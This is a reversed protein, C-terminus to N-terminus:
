FTFNSRTNWAIWRCFKSMLFTVLKFILIQTNSFRLFDSFPRPGSTLRLHRKFPERDSAESVCSLQEAMRWHGSCRWPRRGRTGGWTGKDMARPQLPPIREWESEERWRVAGVGRDDVGQKATTSWWRAAEPWRREGDVGGWRGGTDRGGERAASRWWRIGGRVVTGRRGLRAGTSVGHPSVGGKGTVLDPGWRV